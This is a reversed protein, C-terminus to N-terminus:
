RVLTPKEQPEAMTRPLHYVNGARDCFYLDSESPKRAHGDAWLAYFGEHADVPARAYTHNRASDRTIQKLKAWTRGQDSSQWIAMEGGPNYPQPGTETPAVVRWIGGDELYLSGMDYNSDSTAVPRRDWSDGTWRATTWTRPDNEPGSEFGESTLYLIVPRGDQDYRIDKLYVKMGEAAYDHVLAANDPTELPLRLATGDAARWTQGFDPTEVYYLNTRYNLGGPEPHYNFASGAVRDTVASIQYHGKDIAALRQWASWKVGDKSTMFCITRDAGWGYRTVFCIFGRSQLYWAQLYSFNTMPVEKGDELNTAPVLEFSDIDYPKASRHIYSPRSRGHSTSFIWIFGDRDVAIVPNDHADETQKDLLRTPRPVLGTTHDYWSVMHVLRRNDGEVTGGYCFFTKRVEECYVAFPQHKACYTGLGGSYKYKYESDLPQNMYWIGRYGNDKMNLTLEEAALATASAM